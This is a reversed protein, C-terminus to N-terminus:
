TLCNVPAEGLRLETDDYETQGKKWFRPGWRSNFPRNRSTIVQCYPGRAQAGSQGSGETTMTNAFNASNTHDPECPCRMKAYLPFIGLCPAIQLFRSVLM